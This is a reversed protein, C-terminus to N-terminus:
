GVIRQLLNFANRIAHCRGHVSYISTKLKPSLTAVFCSEVSDRFAQFGVFGVFGFGLVRM